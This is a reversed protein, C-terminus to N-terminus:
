EVVVVIFVVVIGVGIHYWKGADRKHQKVKPVNRKDHPHRSSVVNRFTVSINTYLSSRVIKM